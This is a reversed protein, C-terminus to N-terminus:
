RDDPQPQAHQAGGGVRDDHQDRHHGRQHRRRQQAIGALPDRDAVLFAHSLLHETSLGNSSTIAVPIRVYRSYRSREILVRNRIWRNWVASGTHSRSKRDPQVTSGLVMSPGAIASAAIAKFRDSGISPTSQQSSPRM